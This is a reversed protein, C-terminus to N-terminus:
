GEVSGARREGVRQVALQHAREAFAQVFRFGVGVDAGDHEGAGAVTREARAHVQPRERRALRGRWLGAGFAHVREAAEEAAAVDRHRDHAGRLCGSDGAAEFQEQIAVDDHRCFGRHEANGLDFTSQERGTTADVEALADREGDREFERQGAVRDVGRPACDSPSTLWTTAASLTSSAATSNASRMALFPGSPKAAVFFIRRAAILSAPLARANNASHCGLTKPLLSALSPEVPRRRSARGPMSPYKARSPRGRSARSSNRSPASASATVRRRTSTTSCSTCRRRAHSRLHGRLAPLRQGVDREALGDGCNAASRRRTTSSRPTCRSTSTSREAAEVAHPQVAAGHQRYGEDMRDAMFPGWTAGGESVLVKLEPHRDLVGAAILQTVARQGGYTTEIYNLVAGGRGATTSAPGSTRCREARHRHPVRDRMGTEAFAAWM